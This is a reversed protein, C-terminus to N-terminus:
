PKPNKSQLKYKHAQSKLRDVNLITFVPAFPESNPDLGMLIAYRRGVATNVDAATVQIKDKIDRYAENLIRLPLL